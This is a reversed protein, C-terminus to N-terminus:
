RRAAPEKPFVARYAPRLGGKVGVRIGHWVDSAPGVVWSLVWGPWGRDLLRLKMTERRYLQGAHAYALFHSVAPGEAVEPGDRWVRCVGRLVDLEARRYGADITTWMAREYGGGTVARWGHQVMAVSIPLEDSREGGHTAPFPLEDEADILYRAAAFFSRAREKDFVFVGSNFKPISKVGLRGCLAGVDVYWTGSAYDWGGIGFAGGNAKGLVEFLDDVRRNVLCDADIYLTQRFPTYYDVHLKQHMAQGWAKVMEVRHDFLRLLEPDHSDTVVAMPVGPNHLRFSRGLAKVGELYKASGYGICLMGREALVAQRPAPEAPYAFRPTRLVDDTTPHVTERM